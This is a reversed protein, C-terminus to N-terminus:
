KEFLSENAEFAQAANCSLRQLDSAHLEVIASLHCRLVGGKSCELAVSDTLTEKSIEPERIDPATKVARLVAEGRRFQIDHRNGGARRLTYKLDVPPEFQVDVHEVSRQGPLETTVLM